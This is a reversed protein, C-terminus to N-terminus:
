RDRVLDGELAQGATVDAAVTTGLYPGSVKLEAVKQDLRYVNLRQDLQPLRSSTFDVIVFRLPERVAIVRGNLTDAPRVAPKNTAPPGQEVVAAAVRRGTRKGVAAKFEPESSKCGFSILAFCFVLIASLVPM